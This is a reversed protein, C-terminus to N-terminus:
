WDRWGKDRLSFSPGAALAEAFALRLILAYPRVLNVHKEGAVFIHRIPVFIGDVM